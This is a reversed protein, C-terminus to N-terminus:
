VRLPPSTHAAAHPALEMALRTKGSGRVATLIPLPASQLRRPISTLEYERAVFSTAAVRPGAVRQEVTVSDRPETGARAHLSYSVAAALTYDARTRTM